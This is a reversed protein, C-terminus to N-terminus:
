AVLATAEKWLKRNVEINQNINNLPRLIRSGVVQGGKICNEQIVNYTNWLSPVINDEHRHPILLNQANVIKSNKNFALRIKAAREAFEKQEKDTLNQSKMREILEYSEKAQEAVVLASDIVSEITNFEGQHRVKASGTEETSVILGNSCVIRFMGAMIRFSSQGDHSNVIVIEPREDEPKLTKLFDRHTLRVCHKHHPSAVKGARVNQAFANTVEFGEGRLANIVSSTNFQNYKETRASSYDTNFVQPCRIAIENDTLGLHVDNALTFM